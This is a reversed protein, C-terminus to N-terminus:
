RSSWAMGGFNEVLGGVSRPEDDQGVVYLEIEQDSREVQYVMRSGDQSLTPSRLDVDPGITEVEGDPRLLRLRGPRSPGTSRVFVVGDRAESWEPQADWGKPAGTVVQEDQWDPTVSVLHSPDTARDEGSRSYVVHGEGTWTVSSEARTDTLMEGVLARKSLSVLSLGTATGDSDRCLLALRDTDDPDWAARGTYTCGAPPDSILKEGKGTAGVRRVYPVLQTTDNGSSLLNPGALYFIWHRDPSLVPLKGDVDLYRIAPSAAEPDMEALVPRFPSPGTGDADRRVTLVMTREPLTVVKGGKDGGTDDDQGHTVGWWVGVVVLATAVGAAVLGLPGRGPRPGPGPRPGRGPGPDPRGTRPRPATLPGAPGAADGLDTPGTPESVGSPEPTHTRLPILATLDSDDTTADELPERDVALDARDRVGDDPEVVPGDPGPVTELAPDPVPEAVEGERAAVLGEPEPEPENMLGEPEPEPETVLGDPESAPEPEAAVVGAPGLSAEPSPERNQRQEPIPVALLAQSARAAVQRSDDGALRELALRAGLARGPHRGALLRELEPIVAGRQWPLPSDLSETLETPLDSPVSVPQGRRALFLEGELGFVWKGPTQQPAVETVEDYVYSYLEDLGVWGDLDRDAEGSRLGEVLSRTFVSPGADGSAGAAGDTLASGEFAFQMSTSATIVARGRGALRESLDLGPGGRSTLGRAFAGAYCCDLLLVVRKSRTRDMAKNVFAASVATAELLDLHTDSTAFYLEGSDDKVGHCSFHLLLLDDPRRSKFFRAVELQVVHAPQNVVTRVEFGGVDPDGLVTALEEADHEPARLRTLGADDYGYTAVILASRRPEM